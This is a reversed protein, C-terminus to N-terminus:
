IKLYIDFVSEKKETLKGENVRASNMLIHLYLSVVTM